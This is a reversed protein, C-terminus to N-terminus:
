DYGHCIAYLREIGDRDASFQCHTERGREFYRGTTTAGLEARALMVPTRAADEPTQANGFGLNRSLVSSPDGPHCANVTIGANELREALAVTLMRNAQKSQRYATHNDFRRRRFELDDLDLDGAWYSAVNVVRAPASRELHPRFAETTWHYGLVNTAFTLEINEPTEQRRRPAVGADNVLVHLPGEWADALAQISNRRSLDALVFRLNDNGTDRRIADVAKTARGADRALLVLEHDPTAALARAIANGIVGTAGTVLFVTKNNNAM